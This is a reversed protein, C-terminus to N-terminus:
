DQVLYFAELLGAHVHVVCTADQTNGIHSKHTSVPTFSVYATIPSYIQSHQCKIAMKSIHKTVAVIKVYLSYASCQM